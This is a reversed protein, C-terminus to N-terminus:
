NWNWFRNLQPFLLREYTMPFILHSVEAETVFSPGDSINSLDNLNIITNREKDFAEM